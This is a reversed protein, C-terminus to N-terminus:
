QRTMLLFPRHLLICQQKPRQLCPLVFWFASLSLLSTASSLAAFGIVYPQLQVAKSCLARKNSISQHASPAHAPLISVNLLATMPEPRQENRGGSQRWSRRRHKRPVSMMNTSRRSSSNLMCGSLMGGPTPRPQRGKM